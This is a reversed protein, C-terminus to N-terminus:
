LVAGLIATRPVLYVVACCVQVIGIALILDQPFGFKDVMQEAVMVPHILTMTVSLVMILGLLGSIIWGLWTMAKNQTAM